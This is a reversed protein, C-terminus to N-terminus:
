ALIVVLVIFTNGEEPVVTFQFSADGMTGVMFWSKESDSKVESTETLKLEKALSTYFKQIDEFTETTNYSITLSKDNEGNTKFDTLNSNNSMVFQNIDAKEIDFKENAKKENSKNENKTETAVPTEKKAVPEEVEKKGCAGLVLLSSLTLAILAYKKM